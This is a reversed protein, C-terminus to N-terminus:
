STRVHKLALVAVHTFRRLFVLVGLLSSMWRPECLLKLSHETHLFVALKSARVLLAMLM